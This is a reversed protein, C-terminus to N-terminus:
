KVGRRLRAIAARGDALTDDVLRDQQEQTPVRFSALAGQDILEQLFGRVAREKRELGFMIHEPSDFIRDILKQDRSETIVWLASSAFRYQDHITIGHKKAFDKASDIRGKQVAGSFETFAKNRPAMYDTKEPRFFKNM